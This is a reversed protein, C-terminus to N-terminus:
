PQIWGNALREPFDTIVGALQLAACRAHEEPTIPGWSWHTWGAGESSRLLTEDLAEYNWILVGLRPWQQRAATVVQLSAPRHGMLLGCDAVAAAACETLLEHRFSSVLLWRNHRYRRLIPLAAQLAAPTKIEINWLLDPFLALAEDLSSVRHGVANALEERTLSEVPRGDALVRDHFLLPLGDRSARVDTEVGDLGAKRAAEFSEPSNEPHESHIGRHALRLM